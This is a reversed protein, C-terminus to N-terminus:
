DHATVKKKRLFYSKLEQIKIVGMMQLSVLYTLGGAGCLVGVAILKEFTSAHFYSAVFYALVSLIFAMLCSAIMMRSLAFKLRDDYQAVESKKLLRHYLYIQLWGSLGTAFSIGAVGFPRILVICLAINLITCAISIKVPSVTDGDSWFVTAYVKAAIYAPLGVAYGMLVYSTILTDDFDFRGREFLLAVLPIPIILFAVAAPLTILMTYELSRNFLDKSEVMQKNALAQSLLPLLATGIGVGIVGLPLQNLRDAYYLYSISGDALTSAFMMDVFINIQLVGAGIVGPIM